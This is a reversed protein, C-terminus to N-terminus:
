IALKSVRFSITTGVVIKDTQQSHATVFYDGNPFVKASNEITTPSCDSLLKCLLM